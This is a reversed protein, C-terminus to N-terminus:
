NKAIKNIKPQIIWIGIFYFWLMFFDSAFDGFNVEKQLEVTKLTKAVFYISYFIGFMSLLHLPLIIGIMGIVYGVSPETGNLMIGSFVGGIFLSIFFIYVLPIFFFIKFKKTKMKINGPIKTQLGISISWFWGFLVGMYIIVIIPFFNMYDSTMILESKSETGINSIMSDMMIFQFIIPIGFTLLFLQWHKAKLFKDIM